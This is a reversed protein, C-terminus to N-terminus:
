LRSISLHDLMLIEVKAIAKKFVNSLPDGVAWNSGKVGIFFAKSPLKQVSMGLEWVTSLSIGHSSCNAIQRGEWSQLNETTMISGDAGSDSQFADIIIAHRRDWMELLRTLDDSAQHYDALDPHEQKLYHIVAPGFGDDGRLSNGIGIVVPKDM